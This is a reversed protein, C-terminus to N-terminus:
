GLLTKLTKTDMSSENQVQESVNVTRMYMVPYKTSDRNSSNDIKSKNENEKNKELALKLMVNM